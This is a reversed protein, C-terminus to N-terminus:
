RFKNMCNDFGSVKVFGGSNNVFRSSNEKCYKVLSIEEQRKQNTFYFVALICIILIMALKFWEKKIFNITMNKLVFLGDGPSSRETVWAGKPALGIM